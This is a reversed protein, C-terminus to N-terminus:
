TTDSELVKEEYSNQLTRFLLVVPKNDKSTGSVYIKDGWVFTSMITTLSSDKINAEQMFTVTPITTTPDVKYLRLTGLTAVVFRYSPDRQPELPRHSDFLVDVSKCGLPIRVNLCNLQSYVPGPMCQQLYLELNSSNRLVFFLSQDIVVIQLFGHGPLIGTINTKTTFYGGDVLKRNRNSKFLHLRIDTSEKREYVFLLSEKRDQIKTNFSSIALNNFIGQENTEKSSSTDLIKRAATDVMFLKMTRTGDSPDVPLLCTFYLDYRDGSTELGTCSSGAEIPIEISSSNLLSGSKPDFDAFLLYKNDCIFAYKNATIYVFTKCNQPSGDLPKPTEFDRFTQQIATSNFGESEDVKYTIKPGTVIDSLSFVPRDKGLVAFNGLTPRLFGANIPQSNVLTELITAWLTLLLAASSMLQM